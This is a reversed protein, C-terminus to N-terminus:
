TLSYIGVMGSIIIERPTQAVPKKTNVARKLIATETLSSTPAQDAYKVVWFPVRYLTGKKQRNNDLDRDHIQRLLYMLM